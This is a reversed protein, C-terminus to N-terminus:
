SSQWQITGTNGSLTLVTSNTGTCVTTAGAISGAVSAPNVTMTVSSTTDSSCVGSTVVAQYYTTATLDTVTYTTSTEGVIDAFTSNDDSYQWQITGTNGSLTLLTSNTGTCVTTAGTISGAVSAPNVTMTVSSTTARTCVGSTVVARYYTTATLNTAT